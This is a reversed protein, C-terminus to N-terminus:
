HAIRNFIRAGVKGIIMAILAILLWPDYPMHITQWTIGLLLVIIGLTYGFRGSRNKHDLEREDHVSEHVVLGTFLGTCILLLGYVTLHMTNSMLMGSPNILLFGFVLLLISLVLEKWTIYKM